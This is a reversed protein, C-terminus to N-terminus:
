WGLAQRVAKAIARGMSVPVANGIVSRKGHMTFPMHDTFDEPLGQLRCAEQISPNIQYAVGRGFPGHGALVAAGRSARAERRTPRNDSRVAAVAVLPAELASIEIDLRRGDRTGFSIRRERNQEEGLWRNNLLQSHVRYGPVVPEPAARVNEMVFADPQAEFVVREYEPILNGFKTDHGNARVLHALDSFTQCPPGGIVLDFKGAPAHFRRIDGGWIVDPGRVVTFGELEFARDLVGIGPFLSLVLMGTDMVM